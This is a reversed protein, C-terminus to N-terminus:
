SCTGASCKERHHCQKHPHSLLCATLPVDVKLTRSEPQKLAVVQLPWPVHEEPLEQSQEVPDPLHAARQFHRALVVHTRANYTAATIVPSIASLAGGTEGRVARCAECLM